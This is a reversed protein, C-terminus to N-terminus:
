VTKLRSLLTKFGLEKFIREAETRSINEIRYIEPNTEIPCSTNIIALSKSLLVQSKHELLKQRLGSTLPPELSNKSEIENYLNEVTGYKSILLSATREGIGPVGPINDSPDGRLAKYDVLFEPGFGYRSEVAKRDYITTESIGKKPIVIKTQESALQLTDLDGSLIIM